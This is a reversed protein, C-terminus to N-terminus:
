FWFFPNAYDVKLSKGTLQNFGELSIQVIFIAIFFAICSVVISEGIFQAMLSSRYAGAVKRIGVEKARKESRATSLNMFNICAIFLIFAAILGFLKVTEIQGDVLKGNEDKSYLHLRSVAQSFVQETEDSHSTTINKVKADFATHLAGPKLLVYTKVSNNGWYDDDWGLKKMFAWPLLYEFDFSTNNPLDKLVGKVTFNANSDIRVTQGIPDANGFLKKALQETIVMDYNGTLAQAADGKLLPFSFMNLFGSDTFAGRINLHKEGVTVLFTVNTFRSADEVEPYNKKLTAAMIKPTSNWAHLEGGFKDRNYMMYLRDINKYFRDYNLENQVWLLILMTSAMGITLGLINIAAFAKNRFLNRFTIKFFNKVM